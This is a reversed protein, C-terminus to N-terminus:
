KEAIVASGNTGKQDVINGLVQGILINFAPLLDKSKGRVLGVERVRKITHTSQHTFIYLPSGHVSWEFVLVM